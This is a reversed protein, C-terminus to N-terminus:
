LTLVILVVAIVAGAGAFILASRRRRKLFLQLLLGSLAILVLFAGAADIAWKWSSNADRGKHLDNMVGLLGQQEITIRYAGTATDFTADAAYGPARYSITGSTGTTDYDAVDASIGYTDRLYESVKLYDVSGDPAVDFTMTGSESTTTPGGAFTWEPHNATIGSVGFFLVIVLAIMSAYTHVLRSWKQTAASRSRSSRAPQTAAPTPRDVTDTM